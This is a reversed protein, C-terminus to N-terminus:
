KEAAETKGQVVLEVRRNSARGESTDNSAIPNSEGKGVARMRDTGLGKSAFYNMVAEARAQSLSANIQDSGSSDTYGEISVSHTKAENLARAIEDLQGQASPRLVSKGSEFLVNGSLTIVLGREEQKSSSRLNGSLQSLLSQSQLQAEALEHRAERLEQKKLDGTKAESDSITRAVMQAHLKAEEAQANIEAMQAQRQAVYALDRTGQSEPQDMFSKEADDLARRAVHVQAPVLKAAPGGSVRGFTLRADSLESPTSYTSSACAVCGAILASVPGARKIFATIM